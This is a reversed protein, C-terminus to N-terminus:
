SGTVPTLSINTVTAARNLVLQGTASVGVEIMAGASLASGLVLGVARSVPQGNAVVGTTNINIVCPNVTVTQGNALPHGAPFTSGSVAFICSAFRTAGTATNGGSAIAFGPAAATGSFALTTSGTTGLGPVGAPFAFSTGALAATVTGNAPVTANGAAVLLPAPSDGGGGCGALAVALVAATAASFQYKM